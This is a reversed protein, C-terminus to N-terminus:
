RTDIIKRLYDLADEVTEKKELEEVHSFVEIIRMIDKLVKLHGEQDEAALVFIIRVTRSGSFVVPEKFIAMSVALHNVGEEPKTHALMVDDTIAMYPGYYYIHSIINELFCKEIDGSEVLCGGALRIAEQWTVQKDVIRVTQHNLFALLGEKDSKGSLKKMFGELYAELDAKVEEYDEKKIYKKVINFVANSEHIKQKGSILQHNLILKRDMDTLIPHVVIAPVICNIKVTSIVLDCIKQVNVSDTAAMVGVIEGYPLLRQIERKLMNGTSIGHVCILLIRLTDKEKQPIQLHAGFHLALYAVEDDSIPLGAMQELYRCALKTLEFINPYEKIVDDLLSNGIQIGYEFRYLSSNLHMFLARELEERNEFIVCAIKEFETVLAKTLEYVSQNPREEFFDYPATITRAGLLHLCLYSKEITELNGFYREVMGWERTKEIKNQRFDPLYINAGKRGLLPLLAAISLLVGDVYKTHLATEIEKLISLNDLIQEQNFFKLLGSQFLQKLQYFNRLYIARLKLTDGQVTYGKKSEYELKLGYDQLQNMVVRLDNFVTNRSVMCYDTLQDIYVPETSYITSCIIIGIREMPSFVYNEEAEGGEVIVNIREKTDVNIFIGKKRVTELEPIGYSNLWENIRCMDYYISRKSVKMIEAIQALTIYSDSSLLINLIERCRANMYILSM